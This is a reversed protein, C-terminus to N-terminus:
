AMTKSRLELVAEVYNLDAETDVGRSPGTDVVTVHIKLGWYLARLQELSEIGEYPSRQMSKLELLTGARYAYIGHHRLVWPLNESPNVGETALPFRDRDWPIPARSFYQAYGEHDLVVKVVNPDFIDKSKTFPSALTALRALPRQHLANAVAIVLEPELLPEDGQVNVVITDAAIGRKEVVEALRETGSSHHAMTMEVDGGLALVAAAIKADDTAVLTASANALLANEYVHAILPKGCLMRLPKGPLRTAGYRAPIVIIFSAEAHQQRVGARVPQTPSQTPKVM